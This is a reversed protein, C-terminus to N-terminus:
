WMRCVSFFFIHFSNIFTPLSLGHISNAPKTNITQKTKKSMLCIGGVPTFGNVCKCNIDCNDTSDCEESEDVIGDGCVKSKCTGNITCYQNEECGMVDLTGSECDPDPLGCNCDCEKNNNYDGPDCTWLTSLDCKGAKCFRDECDPTRSIDGCDPDPVGCECNCIKGDNYKEPSCKWKDECTSTSTNCYPLTGLCNTPNKANLCDPDILGGCGCDCFNDTGYKSMNCKTTDWGPYVCENKYCVGQEGNDNICTPTVITADKKDCDPDPVGCGCDCVGDNYKEPSCKWKDECTSTSENCYPLTGPCNTPNDANLCDPDVLGGCGCDCIGDTGYKSMNCKTTDWGPYVCENNYCVGQEGNGNICTSTVITADKKDCDPDPVGCGCDCVGDNYKEPSCKWKDECTSTSENCYPLTGPCNTPNDANLCDPDFLGGCECDCFNDTGYKSMDCKTTDWEPYVCEDKYCQPEREDVKCSSNLSTNYCEPDWSGCGCDCVGNALKSKDCTWAITCFHHFFNNKLPIMFTQRKKKVSNNQKIALIYATALISLRLTTM